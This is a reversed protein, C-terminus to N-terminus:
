ALLSPCVDTVKSVLEPRKYIGAFFVAKEVLDHLMVPQAEEGPPLEVSDDYGQGPANGDYAKHFGRQVVMGNMAEDVPSLVVFQELRDNIAKDISEVFDKPLVFGPRFTAYFHGTTKSFVEDVCALFHIQKGEARIHIQTRYVNLGQANKDLFGQLQGARVKESNNVIFVRNPAVTQQKLSDLTAKLRALKEDLENGDYDDVVIVFDLKQVVDKRVQTEYDAFPVISAWQSNNDRFFQCKRNNVIVFAAEEDEAEIVSEPDRSCFIELKKLRCGAQTPKDQELDYTAFVCNKCPQHISHITATETQSIM